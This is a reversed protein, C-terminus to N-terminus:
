ISQCWFFKHEWFLFLFPKLANETALGVRKFESGIAKIVDVAIMVNLFNVFIYYIIIEFHFTFKGLFSDAVSLRFRIALLRDMIM